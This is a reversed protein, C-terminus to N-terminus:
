RTPGDPRGTPLMPQGRSMLCFRELGPVYTSVISVDGDLFPRSYVVLGDDALGATVAALTDASTGVATGGDAPHGTPPRGGTLDATTPAMTRRLPPYPALRDFASTYPDSLGYHGIMVVDQWLESVARELSYDPRVSAGSGNYAFRGPRHGVAYHASVAGFCALEYLSVEVGEAAVWRALAGLDAPVTARDIEVATRGALGAVGLLARSVADREILELVGHLTADSARVGSTIGNTSCYKLFPRYDYTDGPTPYERYGVDALAVPLLVEGRDSGRYRDCAVMGDPSWQAMLELLRDEAVASQAAVERMPLLEPVPEWPRHARLMFYNELAEYIASALSQRGSGKGSGRSKVRGDVELLCVSVLFSDEDESGAVVELTPTLGHGEAFAVARDVAARPDLDRECGARAPGVLGTVTNSM